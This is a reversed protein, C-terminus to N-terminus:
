LGLMRKVTASGIDGIIKIATDYAPKGLKSLMWKLREGAQKAFPTEVVVQDVVAQVAAADEPSLEAQITRVLKKLQTRREAEMEAGPPTDHYRMISMALHVVRVLAEADYPAEGAAVCARRLADIEAGYQIPNEPDSYWHVERGLQAAAEGVSHLFEFCSDSLAMPWEAILSCLGLNGHAFFASSGVDGALEAYWRLLKASPQPFSSIALTNAALDYPSSVACKTEGEPPL